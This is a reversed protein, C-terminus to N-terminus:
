VHARGIESKESYANSAEIKDALARSLYLSEVTNAKRGLLTAQSSRGADIEVCVLDLSDPLPEGYSKDLVVM